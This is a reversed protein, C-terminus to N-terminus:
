DGPPPPGTLQFGTLDDPLSSYAEDNLSWVGDYFVGLPVSGAGDIMGRGRGVASLHIGRGEIRVHALGGAIRFRVDKGHYVTTTASRYVTKEQGFVVPRRADYPNADTITVKGRAFRGIMSGRSSLQVMGRGDRVSLTGDSPAGGLAPAAAVFPLMSFLVLLKGIPM